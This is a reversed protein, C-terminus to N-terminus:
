FPTDEATGSSEETQKETGDSVGLLINALGKCSRQLAREASIDGGFSTVRKFAAIFVETLVKSLPHADLLSQDICLEGRMTFFVWKSSGSAIYSNPIELEPILSNLLNTVRVVREDSETIPQLTCFYEPNYKEV